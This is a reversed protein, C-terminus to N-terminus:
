HTTRPRSEIWAKAEEVSSFTRMNAELRLIKHMRAAHDQVSNHVVFARWTNSSFCDVEDALKLFDPAKLALDEVERLDVIESFDREFVPDAKLRNTYRRIDEVTVRKAVRVFVTRKEVDIDFQTGDKKKELSITKPGASAMALM